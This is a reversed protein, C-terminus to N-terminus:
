FGRDFGRVIKKDWTLGFKQLRDSYSLSKDNTNIIYAMANIDAIGSPRIFFASTTKHASNCVIDLGSGMKATVRFGLRGLGLRFDPTTNRKSSMFICRWYQMYHLKIVPSRRQMVYYLTSVHIWALGRHGGWFELNSIVEDDCNCLVRSGSPFM